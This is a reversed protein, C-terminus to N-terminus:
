PAHELLRTNRFHRHTLDSTSLRGPRSAPPHAKTPRSPATTPVFQISHATRAGTGSGSRPPFHTRQTGTRSRQQPRSCSTRRMLLTPRTSRGAIAAQGAPRGDVGMSTAVTHPHEGEWEGPYGGWIVLPPPDPGLAERATAYARVLLPVRKFDLFRGVFLLVPLLEGTASDLFFREIDNNSYRITGPEGSEDWGRPEDVLWRRWQGLRQSTTLGIPVFRGIDVGNPVVEILSPAVALLDIALQRDTPSIVVLRDARRGARVLRQDWEAAHKWREGGGRRIEALMKLETGHLHVVTPRDGLAAVADNVPTLHHIHYLDPLGVRELLSQWAAVQRNYADDDLSAFVRDPVGQRDEFSPHFPVPAAMPDRGQEFWTAAETFDLAQVDLGAFFTVAHSSSGPPGKSGCCVTVAHGLTRLAGGLYRVVQASGGRPYFALTM